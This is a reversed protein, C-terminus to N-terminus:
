RRRSFCPLIATRISRCMNRTFLEPGDIYARRMSWISSFLCLRKTEGAWLQEPHWQVGYVPYYPSEVAENVGDPSFAVARLSPAVDRVAQHHLSNVGIHVTGLLRALLSGEVLSVDHTPQRKDSEQSHPLVGAPYETPLDQYLTGGLALNILQHGRCIGFVPLQRRLAM